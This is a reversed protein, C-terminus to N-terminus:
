PRWFPKNSEHRAACRGIGIDKLEIESMRALEGRERARRRWLALIARWRQLRKWVM